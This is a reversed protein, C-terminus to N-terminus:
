QEKGAASPEVASELAGGLLSELDHYALERDATARLSAIELALLGRRVRLLETFDIQGAEYAATMVTLEQRTRPLLDEEHLLRTREADRYTYLLEELRGALQLRADSLSASAARLRAAAAQEGASASGGWLPVNVALRAIVPDKGSDSVGEMPAPGTMIYDLGVTLSPYGGKGALDWGHRRAEERSRLAVLASNRHELLATLEARPPLIRPAADGAPLSAVPAPLDLPLGAAANLRATLAGQRDQLGENRVVLRSQEMQAELLDAYSASGSEYAVRTRWELQRALELHGVVLNAEMQAVALATWAVAVQRRVDLTRGDLGAGAADVLALAQKERLSLTGFWPLSQSVSLIRQQPGVRTEVPVIMEGWALKLSPLAGVGAADHRLADVLGAEGSLAPSNVLAWAHYDALDADAPFADITSVASQAAALPSWALLLCVAARLSCALSSGGSRSQSRLFYL